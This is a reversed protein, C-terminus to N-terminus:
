YKRIADFDLEIIFDKLADDWTFKIFGVEGLRSLERRFTLAQPHLIAPFRM